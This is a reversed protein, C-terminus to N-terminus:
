VEDQSFIRYMDTVVLSGGGRQQVEETMQQGQVQQQQLSEQERQRDCGEKGACYAKLSEEKGASSTCIACRLDKEGVAQPWLQVAVLFPLCPFIARCAVVYVFIERM